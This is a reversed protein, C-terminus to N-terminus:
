YEYEYQINYGLKRILNGTSKILEISHMVFVNIM